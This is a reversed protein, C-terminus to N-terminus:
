DNNKSESNFIFKSDLEKLQELTIGSYGYDKYHDPPEKGRCVEDIFSKDQNLLWSKFKM